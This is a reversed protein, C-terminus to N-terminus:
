GCCTAPACPRRPRASRVSAVPNPSVTVQLTASAQGARATLSPGAPGSRRLVGPALRRYDRTSRLVLRRSRPAPRRRRLHRHRRDAVAQGVYMRRPAPQLAINAAPGPVITITAFGPKSSGRGAPSVLATVRLAGVAGATALGTSDVTGEFHGGSQFWRIRVDGLPHGASDFGQAVLRITDGM